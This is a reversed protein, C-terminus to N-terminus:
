FIKKFARENDMRAVNGIWELRKKKIFAVIDLDKYVERL